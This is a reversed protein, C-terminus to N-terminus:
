KRQTISMKVLVVKRVISEFCIGRLNYLFAWQTKNDFSIYFCIVIIDRYLTYKETRSSRLDVFKRGFSCLYRASIFKGDLRCFRLWGFFKGVDSCPNLQILWGRKETYPSSRVLSPPSVSLVVTALSKWKNACIGPRPLRNCLEGTATQGNISMNIRASRTPRHHFMACRTLSVAQTQEHQHLM